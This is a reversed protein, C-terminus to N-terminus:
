SAHLLNKSKSNQHKPPSHIATKRQKQNHKQRRKNSTKERAMVQPQQTNDTPLPTNKPQLLKDSPV